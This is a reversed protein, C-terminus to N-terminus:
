RASPQRGSVNASLLAGLFPQKLNRGVGSGSNIQPQMNPVYHYKNCRSPYAELHEVLNIPPALYSFYGRLIATKGSTFELINTSAGLERRLENNKMLAYVVHLGQCSSTSVRTESYQIAIIPFPHTNELMYVFEGPAVELDPLDVGGIVLKLSLPASATEDLYIGIVIDGLRGITSVTTHNPDFEMQHKFLIVDKPQNILDELGNTDWQRKQVDEKIAKWIEDM